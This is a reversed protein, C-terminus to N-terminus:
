NLLEPKVEMNAANVRLRVIRNFHHPGVVTTYDALTRRGNNEGAMEETSQNSRQPSPQLLTELSPFLERSTQIRRRRRNEDLGELLPESIKKSRTRITDQGVYTISSSLSDYGPIVTIFFSRCFFGLWWWTGGGHFRGGSGCGGRGGGRWDCLTVTRKEMELGRRLDCGAFFGASAFRGCLLSTRGESADEGHM